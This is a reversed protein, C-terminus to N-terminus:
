TGTASTRNRVVRINPNDNHYMVCIICINPSGYDNDQVIDSKILGTHLTRWQIGLAKTPPPNGYKISKSKQTQGRVYCKWMYKQAVCDIVTYWVTAVPRGKKIIIPHQLYHHYM